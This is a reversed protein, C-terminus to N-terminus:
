NYLPISLFDFYPINHIPCTLIEDERQSNLDFRKNQLIRKHWINFLAKQQNHQMSYRNDFITYFISKMRLTFM